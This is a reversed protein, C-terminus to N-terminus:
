RICSMLDEHETRWSNHSQCDIDNLQFAKDLMDELNRGSAWGDEFNEWNSGPSEGVEWVRSDCLQNETMSRGLNWASGEGWASSVGWSCSQNMETSTDSNRGSSSSNKDKADAVNSEVIPMDDIAQNPSLVTNGLFSECEHITKMVGEYLEHDYADSTLVTHAIKYIYSRNYDKLKTEVKCSLVSQVLEAKIKPKYVEVLKQAATVLKKKSETKRRAFENLSDFLEGVDNNAKQLQSNEEEVEHMKSELDVLSEKLKEAEDTLESMELRNLADLAEQEAKWTETVKQVHKEFKRRAKEKLARKEARISEKLMKIDAIRKDEVDRLLQETQKSEEELRRKKELNKTELIEENRRSVTKQYKTVALYCRWASQLVVSAQTKEQVTM